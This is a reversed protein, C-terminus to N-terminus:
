NFNREKKILEYAANIQQFKEKAQKQIDEGLSAVKDPHYKVVLKRYSKKIEENTANKNVQLITYAKELQKESYYETNGYNNRYNYDNNYSNNFMAQITGFDWASIRLYSAITHIVNLEQESIESDVSSISFLLHLFELRQSYNLTRNINNCTNKLDIDENKIIDRLELMKENAQQQGINKELWSRVYHVEMKTVRGDAKMIFAFLVLLNDIFYDRTQEYSMSKKISSTDAISGIVFGILGGIFSGRSILFGIIAGIWKANM